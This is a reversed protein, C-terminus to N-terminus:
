RRYIPFSPVGGMFGLLFYILWICFVVVLVVMAIRKFPEPLPIQGVIWYILGFIILAVLFEIM